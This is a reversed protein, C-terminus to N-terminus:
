LNRKPLCPYLAQADWKVQRGPAACTSGERPVTHPWSSTWPRYELSPQDNAEIHLGGPRNSICLQLVAFRWSGDPIDEAVRSLEFRIYLSDLDELCKERVVSVMAMEAEKCAKDLDQRQRKRKRRWLQGAM